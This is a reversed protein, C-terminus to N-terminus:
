RTSLLKQWLDDTINLKQFFERNQIAQAPTNGSVPFDMTFETGGGEANRAEIKGGHYHVIFYCAMLNIGHESPSDARPNFPDFITRQTEESLGPGNDRLSVRVRPNAADDLVTATIQVRSGEALSVIEDKLLLEFVRGFKSKDVTLIPLTEPINIEVSIKKAALPECLRVTVDLMVDHLHVRDTFALGRTEAVAWLEKLLNNIKELHQQASLQYDTWFEANPSKAVDLGEAKLQDPVMDIFTKVPVLSNRIHHSMGAAMLGLSVVRDSVMMNHLVSMKERLLQDREKQVNFLELAHKLTNELQPPDWPKTLYHYIAGSNVAQIVASIDSYATAMIRLIGPRLARVKDLLWVGKEGPMLQDTILLGIDDPNQEIISYGAVASNATFIRFQHGFARAFSRLSKEEDDVYLVSYKKYDTM